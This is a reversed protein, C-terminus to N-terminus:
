QINQILSLPPPESDDYFGERFVYFYLYKYCIFVIFVIFLLLVTHMKNKAVKTM